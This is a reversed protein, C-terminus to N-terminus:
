DKTSKNHFKKLLSSAMYMGTSMLYKTPGSDANNAVRELIEDIQQGTKKAIGVVVFLLIFATVLFAIGLLMFLSGLFYFVSQVDM